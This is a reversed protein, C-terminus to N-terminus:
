VCWFLVWQYVNLASQTSSHFLRDLPPGYILCAAHGTKNISDIGLRYVCLMRAYMFLGHKVSLPSVDGLSLMAAEKPLWISCAKNKAWCTQCKGSLGVSRIYPFLRSVHLAIVNRTLLMAMSRTQFVKTMFSSRGVGAVHHLKLITPLAAVGNKFRVLFLCPAM